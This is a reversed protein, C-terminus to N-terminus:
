KACTGARNKGSQRVHNLFAEGYSCIGYRRELAPNEVISSRNSQMLHQFNLALMQYHVALYAVFKPISKYIIPILIFKDSRGFDVFMM